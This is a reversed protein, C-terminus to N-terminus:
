IYIIPKFKENVYAKHLRGKYRYYDFGCSSIPARLISEVREDKVKDWVIVRDKAKYKQMM